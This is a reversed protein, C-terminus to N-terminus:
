HSKKLLKDLIIEAKKVFYNDHYVPLEEKKLWEILEETTRYGDIDETEIEILPDEGVIDKVLIM